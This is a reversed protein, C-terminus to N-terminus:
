LYKTKRVVRKYITYTNNKQVFHSCVMKYYKLNRVVPHDVDVGIKDLFPLYIIGTKNNVYVMEIDIITNKRMNRKTNVKM